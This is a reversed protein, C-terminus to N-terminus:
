REERSQDTGATETGPRKHFGAREADDHRSRLGGHHYVARRRERSGGYKSTIDELGPICRGGHHSKAGAGAQRYGFVALNGQIQGIGGGHRFSHVEMAAGDIEAIGALVRLPHRHGSGRDQHLAVPAERRHAADGHDPLTGGNDVIASM